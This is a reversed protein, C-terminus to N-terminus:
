QIKFVQPKVLQCKKEKEKHEKSNQFMGFKYFLQSYLLFSFFFREIGKAGSHRLLNSTQHGM